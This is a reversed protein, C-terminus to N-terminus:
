GERSVARALGALQQRGVREAAPKVVFRLLPALAGRWTEVSRVRTGGDRAEFSFRHEAYLLGRAGGCWIIEAARSAATVELTSAVPAGGVKVRIRDGKRLPGDHTSVPVFSRPMWRKWSPYDALADFAAEPSVPLTLEAEARFAM